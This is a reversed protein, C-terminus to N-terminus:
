LFEGVFEVRQGIRDGLRRKRWERRSGAHGHRDLQRGRGTNFITNSGV